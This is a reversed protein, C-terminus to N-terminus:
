LSGPWGASQAAQWLLRLALVTLLLNFLQQFRRNDLKKLVQLGLRTGVLGCVIMAAIFVLWQQFVFGALGFVLAKPAHQLTMATAFTAVTTFRDRHIQKVFAAVLPGTAGVFLSVFSTLVSALFVGPTGLARGPLPPGWCLYLVFLGITLQWLHQPLDVLLWAGVAAGVLVGPAFAAIVRWDVKRWTMAARGANSGLQVLGHVPIIAAPPLWMALLVLLLVGGGAGLSATIMSTIASAALLLAATTVGLGEPLLAIDM